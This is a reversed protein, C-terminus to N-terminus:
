MSTNNLLVQQGVSRRSEYEYTSDHMLLQQM